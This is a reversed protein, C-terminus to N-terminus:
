RNYLPAICGDCRAQRDKVIAQVPYSPPRCLLHIVHPPPGWCTSPNVSRCGHQGQQNLASWDFRIQTERVVDACSADKFLLTSPWPYSLRRITPRLIYSIAQPQSPQVRRHSSNTQGRGYASMHFYRPCDPTDIVHHAVQIVENQMRWSTNACRWILWKTEKREFSLYHIVQVSMVTKVIFLLAM